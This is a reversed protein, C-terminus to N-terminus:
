QNAHVGESTSIPYKRLFRSLLYIGIFIIISAAIVLPLNLITGYEHRLVTSALNGGGLLVGYFYMRRIGFVFGMLSFIGIIVLGAIIDVTYNTGAQNAAESSPQSSQSSALTVIVLGLTLLVLFILVAVVIMRAKSKLNKVIGIRPTSIVRRAYQQVVVIVALFALYIGFNLEPGLLNRTLPYVGLAMFILGLAIDWLGDEYNVLRVIRRHFHGPNISESM